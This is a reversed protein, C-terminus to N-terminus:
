TTGLHSYSDCLKMSVPLMSPPEPLDTMDGPLKSPYQSDDLVALSEVLKDIYRQKMKYQRALKLRQQLSFMRIRNMQREYNEGIREMQTRGYDRM